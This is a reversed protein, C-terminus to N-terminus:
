RAARHREAAQHVEWLARRVMEATTHGLLIAALLEPEGDMLLRSAFTHLTQNQNWHWVGSDQLIKKWHDLTAWGRSWCWLINSKM